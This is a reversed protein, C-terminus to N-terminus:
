GPVVILGASWKNARALNLPQGITRNVNFRMYLGTRM